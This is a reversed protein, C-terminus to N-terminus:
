PTTPPLGWLRVTGNGSGAILRGDPSFALKYIGAMERLLQGTALDVITAEPSDGQYTSAMLQGSPSIPGIPWMDPLLRVMQGTEVDWESL